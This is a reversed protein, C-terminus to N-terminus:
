TIQRTMTVVATAESNYVFGPVRIPNVTFGELDFSAPFDRIVAQKGLEDIEAPDYVEEPVEFTTTFTVTEIVQRTLTAM